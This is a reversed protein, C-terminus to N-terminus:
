SMKDSRTGVLLLRMANRHTLRLIEPATLGRADAVVAALRWLGAPGDPLAPHPTSSELLIHEPSVVEASAQVKRGSRTLLLPGFSLSFGLQVAEHAQSPDGSWGHWIGGAAPLGERRVLHLVEPTSRVAHVLVPRGQSRAWALQARFAARQARREQANTAYRADLGIEGVVRPARAYLRALAEDLTKSDMTAAWRPHLGLAVHGGTAAGAREVESWREPDAGALLWETIGAARARELLAPLRAALRPDDLHALTDFGHSPM